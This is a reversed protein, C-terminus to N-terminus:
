FMKELVMRQSIDWLTLRFVFSFEECAVLFHRGFGSAKTGYYWVVSKAPVVGGHIIGVMM